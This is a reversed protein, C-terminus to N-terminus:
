GSDFNTLFFSIFLFLPFSLSLSEPLPSSGAVQCIAQWARVLQAVSTWMSHPLRARLGRSPPLPRPILSCMCELKGHCDTALLCYKDRTKCRCNSSLM